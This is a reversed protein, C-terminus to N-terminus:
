VLYYNDGSQVLFPDPTSATTLTLITDDYTFETTAQAIRAPLGSAVEQFKRLLVAAM